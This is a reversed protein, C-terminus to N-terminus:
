SLHHDCINGQVTHTESVVIPCERLSGRGSEKMNGKERLTIITSHCDRYTTTESPRTKPRETGNGGATKVPNGWLAFM